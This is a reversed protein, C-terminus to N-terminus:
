MGLGIFSRLIKYYRRVRSSAVHHILGAAMADGGKFPSLSPSPAPAKDLDRSIAARAAGLSAAHLTAGDALRCTQVFDYALEPCSAFHLHIYSAVTRDVTFGEAISGPGRTPTQPWARYSSRWLSPHTCSDDSVRGQEDGSGDGVVGGEGVARVVREEVIETYHFVQGRAVRGPLFLPSDDTTEVRVYGMTARPTLVTKFGFVGVMPCEPAEPQPRVSRSLLILGGCEAYIPGGAASFARLGARLATNKSLASAHLEPYGGGIYVGSIGGPLADRLPSFHVLEAGAAELLTLNEQYYFCFAEDRAM